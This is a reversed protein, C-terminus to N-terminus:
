GGNKAIVKTEPFLSERNRSREISIRVIHGEKAEKKGKGLSLFFSEESKKRLNLAVIFSM